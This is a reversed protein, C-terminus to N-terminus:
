AERKAVANEWCKKIAAWYQVPFTRMHGVHPTGEFTELDVKWGKDRAQAAHGEIDRWNIIQDEKSYMYLRRADKTDYEPNSTAGISFVAPSDAGMAWVLGHIVTLFVVALAYNVAQPCWPMSRAMDLAMARSWPWLNKRLSSSGPTSDFVTLMHPLPSAHVARYRHLTSAYSTGGMNSMVHALVRDSFLPLAKVVAQMSLSRKALSQMTTAVLPTFICVIRSTPFLTQYGAIYKALHKPQADGWGYILITTPDSTSSPSSGPHMYINKSLPTFGPLHSSSRAAAM